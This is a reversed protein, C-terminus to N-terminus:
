VAIAKQLEDDTNAAPTADMQPNMSAQVTVCLLCRPVVFSLAVCHAVAADTAQIAAQMQKEAEDASSPPVKFDTSATQPPAAPPQSVAGSSEALSM